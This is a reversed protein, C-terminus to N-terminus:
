QSSVLDDITHHLAQLSLYLQQHVQRFYRDYIETQDMVPEVDTQAYSLSNLAAPVDAYLGAGLGGLIAAGLTTVETIDVVTITQKLVTAKIQMLLSNRTGGGIMYSKRLATMGPYERLSDLSLRTEYALGELISRFLAGRKIDTSLGIFAGRSRPDDYPPNALRLHPLFCTGLSGPGIQEAEAILTTYDVGEGMIGKLWDVCAGSTYLGALVYYHDAVVHAGQTYGQRSMAPDTLPQAVPLFIAEATGLSNLMVGPETVGIALAGCVHDHGGAAVQVDPTLGTEKAVDPKVSGLPTGSLCLPAFLDVSLGVEQVLEAHWELQRLDLALTRSALSYDTAPVGCLRYAIYDALNLWRVTRAFADSQNEKIWLLKCLGFIPQLSLGSIEFLREKGITHSLWEVQPQTRQDFWAIADYTPQGHRDLPVAAEGASAVAVSVIRRTDDLQKTAERLVTVTAHWLEDPAYYAWGPQPYHIPTPVSAAAVAKGTPDFVVAKINTTGVDIGALLPENMM